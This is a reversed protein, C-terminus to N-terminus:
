YTKFFLILLVFFFFFTLLIHIGYFQFVRVGLDDIKKIAVM